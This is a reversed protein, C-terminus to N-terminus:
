RRRSRRGKGRQKGGKRDKGSRKGEHRTSDPRPMASIDTATREPFKTIMLDLHRSALDVAVIQVTVFDGIALMQGSRRAYMRGTADNVEWRDAKGEAQPMDRISVMGDILFREISVYVGKNTVGTVVGEFEDGLHHEHLFQMVLFERLEREAEEAEERCRVGIDVWFDLYSMGKTARQEETLVHGTATAILGEVPGSRGLVLASQGVPFRKAPDDAVQATALHLFGDNDISRVVFGIEDAHAQILVKRGGGGVTAYLNGIPSREISECRGAWRKECWDMVAQEQGTPGPISTVENLLEFWAM